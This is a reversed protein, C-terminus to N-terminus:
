PSPVITATQLTWGTAIQQIYTLRTGALMGPYIDGPIGGDSIVIHTFNGAGEGGYVEVGSGSDGEFGVGYWAFARGNRARWIPAVGARPTGGAGTGMGHGFHKVATISNAAYTGTPGGWVPMSPNVWSSYEPYLQIMAFDDGIGNNHSLVFKGIHYFGPLRGSGVPPVVYATVDPFGGLADSAACHGATGLGYAGNKTFVFNATCWAFGVYGDSGDQITVLWTGPRIGTSVLGVARPGGPLQAGDPLRVGTSGAAMVKKAFAADYWSPGATSMPVAWGGEFREAGPVPPKALAATTASSAGATVSLAAAALAVVGRLLLTPRM